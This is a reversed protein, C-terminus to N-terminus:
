FSANNMFLLSITNLIDVSWKLKVASSVYRNGFEFADGDGNWEM